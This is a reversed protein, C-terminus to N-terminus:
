NLGLAQLSDVHEQLKFTQRILPRVDKVDKLIKLFPLMNLLERDLEDDYWSEIPIGNDLQYGFAQPSNDILAVRHMPRGLIHLDKLYNGEVDVCSGRFLRHAIYQHHPDLIDLLKDAYVQQSATFIVVEFWQSVQKLFTELHPRTRVYVEYQNDNFLVNFTFTPHPIPQVSCHVLTEDLDIALCIQKGTYKPLPSKRNKMADSLPPLHKIFLFPDFEFDLDDDEAEAETSMNDQSAEAGAMASAPVQALVPPPIPVTEPLTSMHSADHMDGPVSHMSGQSSVSRRRATVAAVAKADEETTHFAPSFLVPAVPDNHDAPPTPHVHRVAAAATRESKRTPVAAIASAAAAPSAVLVAGSVKGGASVNARASAPRASSAATPSRLGNPPLAAALTAAAASPAAASVSPFNTFQPKAARMPSNLGLRSRPASAIPSSPAEYHGMPPKKIPTVGTAAAISNVAKGPSAPEAVIPPPKKAAPKASPSAM